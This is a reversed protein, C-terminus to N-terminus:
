DTLWKNWCEECKHQCNYLFWDCMEVAGDIGKREESPPCTDVMLENLKAKSLFVGNGEKLKIELLAVKLELDAITEVMELMLETTNSVDHEREMTWNDVLKGYLFSNHYVEKIVSM